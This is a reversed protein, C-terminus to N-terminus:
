VDQGQSALCSQALNMMTVAAEAEENCETKRNTEVNYLNDPSKKPTSNSRKFVTNFPTWQRSSKMLHTRQYPPHINQPFPDLLCDNVKGHFIICPPVHSSPQQDISSTQQVPPPFSQRQIPKSQAPVTGYQFTELPLPYSPTIRRVLQQMPQNFYYAQPMPDIVVVSMAISRAPASLLTSDFMNKQRATSSQLAEGRNLKMRSCLEPEDRRFLGAAFTNSNFKPDVRKDM